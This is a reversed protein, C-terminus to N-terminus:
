AKEKAQKFNKRKRCWNQGCRRRRQLHHGGTHAAAPLGAGAGDSFGARAPRVGREGVRRSREVPGRGAGGTSAWAGALSRRAGTREEERTGAGSRGAQAREARAGALSQGAEIREERAGAGSRKCKCISNSRSSYLLFSLSFPYPFCLLLSPSHFLQSLSLSTA